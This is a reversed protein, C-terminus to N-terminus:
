PMKKVIVVESLRELAVAIRELSSLMREVCEQKYEDSFNDM